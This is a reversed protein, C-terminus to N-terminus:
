MPELEDNEYIVEYTNGDKVFYVTSVFAGRRLIVGLVGEDPLYVVDFEREPNEVEWQDIGETNLTEDQSSQEQRTM